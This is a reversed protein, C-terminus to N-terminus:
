FFLVWTLLEFSNGTYILFMCINMLLPRHLSTFVLTLGAGVRCYDSAFMHGAGRRHGYCPVPSGAKSDQVEEPGRSSLPPSGGSVLTDCTLSFGLESGRSSLAGQLDVSLLPHFPATASGPCPGAQPCHSHQGKKAPPLHLLSSSNWLQHAAPWSRFGM